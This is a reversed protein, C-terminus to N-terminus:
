HIQAPNDLEVWHVAGRGYEDIYETVHEMASSLEDPEEDVGLVRGDEILRLGTEDDHSARDALKGMVFTPEDPMREGPPLKTDALRYAEALEQGAESEPDVEITSEWVRTTIQYVRYRTM